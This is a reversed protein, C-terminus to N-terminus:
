FTFCPLSIFPFYLPYSQSISLPCITVAKALGANAGDKVVIGPDAYASISVRGCKQPLVIGSFTSACMCKGGPADVQSHLMVHLLIHKLLM